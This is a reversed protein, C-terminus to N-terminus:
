GKRRLRAAFFGDLGSREAEGRMWHSPLTRVDGQPTIFLDLGDVEGARLPAREVDNRLALLREVQAEGEEPELSCTSYVVLGGPKVLDVAHDLLRAQLTALTPIDAPRKSM